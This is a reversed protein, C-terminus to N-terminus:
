LSFLEKCKFDNRKKASGARNMYRASSAYLDSDVNEWSQGVIM